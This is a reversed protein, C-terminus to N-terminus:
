AVGLHAGTALFRRLDGSLREGGTAGIGADGRDFGERTSIHVVVPVGPPASTRSTTHLIASAAAPALAALSLGAALGAKIACDIRRM